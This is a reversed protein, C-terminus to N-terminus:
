GKKTTTALAKSHGSVGLTVGISCTTATAGEKGIKINRMAGEIIGLFAGGPVTGASSELDLAGALTM